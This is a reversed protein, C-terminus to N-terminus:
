QTKKVSSKPLWGGTGKGTLVQYWGGIEQVVSLKENEAATYVIPSSLDPIRYLPYGATKKDIILNSQPNVKPIDTPKIEVTEGQVNGKDGPKALSDQRKQHYFFLLTFAIIAYGIIAVSFITQFKKLKLKKFLIYGTIIPLLLILIFATTEVKNQKIISILRIFLNNNSTSPNYDASAAQVRFVLRDSRLLKDDLYVKVIGFNESGNLNNKFEATIEKTTNPAVKELKTVEQTEIVKKNLDQIELIIKSPAIETNGNNQVTVLLKIPEKFDVDPIVLNKINLVSINISTTVLTVEMRAGKVISVGSAAADASSAKIRLFGKYNKLEADNPVTIIAKVTKRQQGKPFIFEKGPEFKIWSEIEGLDTEIVVKLNEDLESRSLVIEKEFKAGPKLSDNYIEAPSIGFGAFAPKVIFFPLLAALFLIFLKINKM